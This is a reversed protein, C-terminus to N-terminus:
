DYKLFESLDCMPLSSKFKNLKSFDVTDQSLSNWFYMDIIDNETAM